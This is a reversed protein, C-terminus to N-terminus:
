DPALLVSASANPLISSENIFYFWPHTPVFPLHEPITPMV